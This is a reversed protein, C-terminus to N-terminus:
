AFFQVVRKAKSSTAEQVEFGEPIKDIAMIECNSSGQAFGVSDFQGRQKYTFSSGDKLSATVTSTYGSSYKGQYATASCVAATGPALLNGTVGENWSMTWATSETTDTSTMHTYSYSASVTADVKGEGLLPVGVEASVSLSTGATVTNTTSQTTSLTNQRTASNSFTYTKNTGDTNTNKIAVRALYVNDIGSLKANVDDISSDFVMDTIQASEVDTKLFLLQMSSIFASDDAKGWVGLLLGSSIDATKISKWLSSAGVDVEDEGEVKWHFSGPSDRAHNEYYQIKEIRTGSDWTIQKNDHVDKYDKNGHINSWSGDSYRVRFAQVNWKNAWLEIGNVVLGDKWRTECYFAKDSDSYQQGVLTPNGFVYNNDLGDTCDDALGLSSLSLLALGKILLGLRM